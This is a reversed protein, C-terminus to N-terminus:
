WTTFFNLLVVEGQYDYLSVANGDVDNLTFDTVTQGVSYQAYMSNSLILLFICGLIFLLNSREKMKKVGM